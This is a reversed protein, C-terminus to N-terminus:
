SQLLAVVIIRKDNRQYPYCSILTLRQDGTPDMVWTDTPKVVNTSQVVYTFERSVTSVLVTDGPTLRDLHRFIEGYVDNHAALVMNGQQGPNATSEQHGVGQKLVEPDTGYVVNSDVRIAPIRIRIPGEPRPQPRARPQALLSKVQQRYQVPVEEFNFEAEGNELLVHGTPLVVSSVNIIPTPSPPVYQAEQTARAAAQEAATSQQIAQFMEYLYVILLFVGITAAIEVGLLARNWWVARRSRPRPAATPALAGNAPRAPAKAPSVM